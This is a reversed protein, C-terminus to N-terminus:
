YAQMRKPRRAIDDRGVLDFFCRSAFGGARPGPTEDDKPHRVLMSSM